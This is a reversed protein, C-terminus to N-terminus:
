SPTMWEEAGANPALPITLIFFSAVLALALRCIFRQRRSGQIAKGARLELQFLTIVRIALALMVLQVDSHLFIYSKKMDALFTTLGTVTGFVGVSKGHSAPLQCSVGKKQLFGDCVAQRVPPELGEFLYIPLIREVTYFSPSLIFIVWGLGCLASQVEGFAILDVGSCLQAVVLLLMITVTATSPSALNVSLFFSLGYAMYCQAVALRLLTWPSAVVKSFPGYIGTWLIAFLLLEAFHCFDKALYQSLIPIGATDERKRELRDCSFVNMSHICVPLMLMNQAIGLKVLVDEFDGDDGLLARVVCLFLAVLGLNSLRQRWSRCLQLSCRLYLTWFTESIGPRFKEYSSLPLFEEALATRFSGSASSEGRFAEWKSALEDVSLQLTEDRESSSSDIFDLFIDAPNAMSPIPAELVKEFYDVCGAVPGSYVLYGGTALLVVNDFFELTQWRPQHIVAVTTCHQRSRGCLLKVISHAAAADLGSTPEDLFLVSPQGVLEMAISTRKRQGGSIGRVDANGVVTDKVHWIGVDRLVTEVRDSTSTLTTNPPLPMDSMCHLLPATHMVDDQPVFGASNRTRLNSEVGEPIAEGNAKLVGSVDGYHQARGTLVNLLSSKGSGSPGMLACSSDAPIDLSINRLVLKDGGRIQLSMDSMEFALGAAARRTRPAPDQEPSGSSTMETELLFAQQVLLSQQRVSELTQQRAIETYFLFLLALVLLWLHGVVLCVQAINVQKEREATFSAGALLLFAVALAFAGILCCLANLGRKRYEVNPASFLFAAFLCVPAYVIWAAALLGAGPLHPFGRLRGACFAMLPAWVGLLNLEKYLGAQRVLCLHPTAVSAISYVLISTKALAVLPMVLWAMVLTTCLLILCPATMGQLFKFSIQEHVPRRFLIHLGLELTLPVAAASTLGLTYWNVSTAGEECRNWWSCERPSSAADPCWHGRRVVDPRQSLDTGVVGNRVEEGIKQSLKEYEEELNPAVVLDDDRRDSREPMSGLGGCMRSFTKSSEKDQKRLKHRVERLLQHAQANGPEIEVLRQLDEVAAQHQQLDMEAKARRFLAKPQTPCEQLVKGCLEKVKAAEGLQLLCAAQNLYAVRRLETAEERKEQFDEPRQVLSGVTEYHAAALRVRGRRFLEGAKERRLKGRELREDSTMGWKANVAQVSLVEMHVMIPAEQDGEEEFLGGHLCAGVDSIRLIAQDGQRSGLAAGELADCVSGEGAVFVLDAPVPRGKEVGNAAIKHVRLCVKGTDNLKDTGSGEKIRKRLVSGDLSGLSVDHVQYIEELSLYLTVPKKESNGIMTYGAKCSVLAEEGLKMSLLVKDMVRAIQGLQESGIKYVAAEASMVQAGDALVEYTIQCEDGPRPPRGDTAKRLEKLAGGDGFIDERLPCSVLEVSLTVLSEPSLEAPLSSGYVLRSATCFDAQEGKFLRQVAIDLGPLSSHQGAIYKCSEESFGLVEGQSTALCFKVEVEDGLRPPLFKRTPPHRKTAKTVGEPLEPLSEM